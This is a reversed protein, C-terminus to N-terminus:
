RGQVRFVEVVDPARRWSAVHDESAALEGSTLDVVEATAACPDDDFSPLSAWLVKGHIGGAAESNTPSAGVALHRGDDTLALAFPDVPLGPTEWHADFGGIPTDCLELVGGVDRLVYIGRLGGATLQGAGSALLWTDNSSAVIHGLQAQGNSAVPTVGRFCTNADVRHLDASGLASLGGPGVPVIVGTGDPALYRVRRETAVPLSCVNGTITAAAVSPDGSGVASVDLFAVADNGDCAVAVRGGGLDVLGAAGDCTAGDLGVLDRVGVRSPDAPDIVLLKGPNTWTTEATFLDNNFVSVLLRDGYPLMFIPEEEGFGVQTVGDFSGGDYYSSLPITQGVAFGELFSLPFSVLSGSDRQPYHGVLVHLHGGALALGFPEDLRGSSNDGDLNPKLDLDITGRYVNGGPDGPSFIEVRDDLTQSVLVLTCVEGSPCGLPGAEGIATDTGTEDGSTATEADDDVSSGNPCGIAAFGAIAVAVRHVARM